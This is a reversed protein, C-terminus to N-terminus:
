SFLRRCKESFVGAKPNRQSIAGSILFPLMKEAVSEYYQAVQGKTIKKKPFLIKEPHTVEIGAIKMSKKKM